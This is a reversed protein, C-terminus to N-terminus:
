AARGLIQERRTSAWDAMRFRSEHDCLTLLLAARPVVALGYDCTWDPRTMTWVLM